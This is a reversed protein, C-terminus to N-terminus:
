ACSSRVQHLLGRMYGIAYALSAHDTDEISFGPFHDPIVIGDFDVETLTKMVEPMDVCGNDIFTEAFRPLPSTVNRFHVTFLKGTAALFRLAGRIDIGMANGGEAWTGVCFLIGWSPSPFARLGRELDAMSGFIRAVGQLAPVPPDDPHLALRVGAEEAVPLLADMMEAHHAWMEDATYSREVVPPLAQARNLDFERTQAGRTITTGTSPLPAYLFFDYELTHLGLEGMCRLFAAMRSLIRDRGPLAFAIERAQYLLFVVSFIELGAAAFRQKAARLADLEDPGAEIHVRVYRIGLERLFRLEEDAASAAVHTGIKIGPEIEAQM